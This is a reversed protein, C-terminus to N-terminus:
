AQCFGRRPPSLSSLLSSPWPLWFQNEEALCPFNEKRPVRSSVRSPFQQMRGGIGAPRLVRGDRSRHLALFLLTKYSLCSRSTRLRALAHSGCRHIRCRQVQGFRSQGQRWLVFRRRELLLTQVVRLGPGLDPMESWRPSTLDEEFLIGSCCAHWDGGRRRGSRASCIGLTVCCVLRIPKRFATTEQECRDRSASYTRRVALKAPAEQCQVKASKM